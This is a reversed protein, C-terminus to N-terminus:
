NFVPWDRIANKNPSLGETIKDLWNSLSQMIMTETQPSFNDDLGLSKELTSVESKLDFLVFYKQSPNIAIVFCDDHTNSQCRQPKRRSKKPGNPKIQEFGPEDESESSSLSSVSENDCDDLGDM